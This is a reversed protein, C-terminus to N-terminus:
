TGADGRVILAAGRAARAGALLAELVAAERDHGHLAPSEDLVERM